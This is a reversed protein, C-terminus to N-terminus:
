NPIIIMLLNQGAGTAATVARGVTVGASRTIVQGSTGVELLAGASVAAGAKVMAVGCLSLSANDGTLTDAHCPYGYIGATSVSGALTCIQGATLDAAATVKQSAPVSEFFEFAQM